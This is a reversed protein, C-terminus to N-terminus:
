SRFSSLITVFNSVAVVVVVVAVVVILNVFDVTFTKSVNLQIKISEV